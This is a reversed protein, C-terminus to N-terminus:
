FPLEDTEVATYGSPFRSAQQSETQYSQVPGSPQDADNRGSLFEVDDATIDLSIRTSGDNATYTRATLPGSVFAKRGKALYKACVEGLQRWVTVRFYQANQEGDRDRRGNVALTFNCVPVGSPTYALEPDKTLNGIVIMKNM